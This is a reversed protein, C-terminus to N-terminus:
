ESNMIAGRRMVARDTGICPSTTVARRQHAMAAPM